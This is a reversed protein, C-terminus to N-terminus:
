APLWSPGPHSGSLRPSQMTRQELPPSAPAAWHHPRRWNLDHHRLARDYAIWQSCRVIFEPAKEPFRQFVEEVWVSRRGGDVCDGPTHLLSLLPSSLHPAPGQPQAPHVVLPQTFLHATTFLRAPHPKLLNAGNPPDHRLPSFTCGTASLKNLPQAPYPRTPYSDFTSRHTRARPLRPVHHNYLLDLLLYAM